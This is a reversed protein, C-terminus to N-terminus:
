LRLRKFKLNFRAHHDAEVLEELYNLLTAEDNNIEERTESDTEYTVSLLM